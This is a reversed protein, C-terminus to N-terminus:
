QIFEGEMIELARVEYGTLKDKFKGSYWVIGSSAEKEILEILQYRTCDAWSDIIANAKEPYKYNNKRQTIKIERM